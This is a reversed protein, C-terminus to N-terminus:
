TKGPVRDRAKRVDPKRELHLTKDGDSTHFPCEAFDNDFRMRDTFPKRVPVRVLDEVRYDIV